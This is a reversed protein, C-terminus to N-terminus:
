GVLATQLGLEAAVFAANMRLIEIPLDRDIHVLTDDETHISENGKDNGEITLVAPVGKDIFPVHDSDHPRFSTKVTLQTYAHAAATLGEVMRRSVPDGGELLVTPGRTNNLVAIMDMNVVSSIRACESAPLQDVYHTSGLLGQEEGGFLILRLDQMISQDKLVRAIELLGASGSGNDDAGPAPAGPDAPLLPNPQNISDLHACVMAVSRPQSGSGAKDAIINLTRAGSIQVDQLTVEYGCSQLRDRCLQAAERFHSTLSHRTPHNVLQALTASFDSPSISDTISKIRPDAALPAIPRTLTEFVVANGTALRISFRAKHDSIRDAQPRDLSVVIHRGRDFLVPIDPHAQQFSRGEQTVLYLLVGESERTELSSGISSTRLGNWDTSPAACCFYDDGFRLWQVGNRELEDTAQAVSAAAVRYIAYQM